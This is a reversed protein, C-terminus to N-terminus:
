RKGTEVARRYVEVTRRATEIWSFQRAREPGAAALRARLESEKFLQALCRAISDASEPDFHLAAEGVVEPLSSARSVASPVGCALAELAPLGFGEFLSPYVFVEAASYLAPLDEEEVTGLVRVSGGVGSAAALAALDGDLWGRPGAIVLERDGRVQSSLRSWVEILRPLNKRPELTGVTLVFARELGLRARLAAVEPAPRPSFREDAALPVVEIASAELALGRVLEARTHESIALLHAGSALARVLGRTCHLRNSVTHLDPHSLFTLDYVTYVLPAAPAFPAALPACNATAHFVDVEGPSPARRAQPRFNGPLRPFRRALLERELPAHLGYLWVEDDLGLSVLGRLLGSVYTAIGDPPGLAKSIDIGVRM